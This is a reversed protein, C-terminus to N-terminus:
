DVSMNLREEVSDAVDTNLMNIEVFNVQIAV